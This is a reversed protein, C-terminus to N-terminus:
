ALDTTVQVARQNPALLHLVLPRGGCSPGSQLGFFDQLRSEVWPPKDREYHVRLRRGHPLEVYEPAVSALRARTEPTLEALVYDVLPEARLEAFSRKGAAAERLARSLVDEPLAMLRADVSAAFSTRARLQGVAEVDFFKDLGREVASQVLLQTVDPGSVDAHS